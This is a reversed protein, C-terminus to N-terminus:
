YKTVELIRGEQAEYGLMGVEELDHVFVDMANCGIMTRDMSSWHMDLKYLAQSEEDQWHLFYVLRRAPQGAYECAVDARAANAAGHVGNEAYAWGRSSGIYGECPGANDEPGNHDFTPGIHFPGDMQPGEIAQIATVSLHLPLYVTWIEYFAPGRLPNAHTIVPM